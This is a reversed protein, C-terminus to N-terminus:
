SPTAKPPTMKIITAPIGAVVAGDPVDKVVVANAAITVHHGITIPGLIKAGTGIFIHNGLNPVKAHPGNHAAGIVVGSEIIIHHGGRVAGNIVVGIPHMFVLGEGFQTGRGIVCGNFFKNIDLLIAGLFGLKIRQTAKALRFFVNTSTGDSLAVRLINKWHTNHFYSLSKYKLDTFLIKM